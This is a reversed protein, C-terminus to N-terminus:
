IYIFMGKNSSFPCYFVYAEKQLDANCLKCKDFTVLGQQQQPSRRILYNGCFCMKGCSVLKSRINTIEDILEFRNLNNVNLNLSEKCYKILQDDNLNQVLTNTSDKVRKVIKDLEKLKFQKQLEKQDKNQNEKKDLGQQIVIKQWAKYM